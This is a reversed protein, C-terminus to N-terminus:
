TTFIKILTYVNVHTDGSTLYFLPFTSLLEELCVCALTTSFLFFNESNMALETVAQM